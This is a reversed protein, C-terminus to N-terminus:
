SNRDESSEFKGVRPVQSKRRPQWIRALHYMWDGEGAGESAEGHSSLRGDDPWGTWRDGVNQKGGGFTHIGNDRHPLISKYYANAGM